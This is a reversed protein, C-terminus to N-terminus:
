RRAHHARVFLHPHRDARPRASRARDRDPHQRDAQAVRRCRAGADQRNERRAETRARRRGPEDAGGPRHYALRVADARRRAAAERGAGRAEGAAGEGLGGRRVPRIATLTLGRDECWAFFRGCARVYAVRGDTSLGVPCACMAWARRIGTRAMAPDIVEHRIIAAAGAHGGRRGGDPPFIRGRGAALIAALRRDMRKGMSGLSCVRPDM